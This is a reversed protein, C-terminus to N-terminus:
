KESMQNGNYFIWKMMGKNDNKISVALFSGLFIISVSGMAFASLNNLVLNGIVLALV